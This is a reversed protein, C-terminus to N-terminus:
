GHGHEECFALPEARVKLAHVVHAPLAGTIWGTFYMDVLRQEQDTLLACPSSMSWSPIAFTAAIRANAQEMAQRIDSDAM